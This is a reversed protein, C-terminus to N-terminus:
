SVWSIRNWRSSTSIRSLTGTRPRTSYPQPGTSALTGGVKKFVILRRVVCIVISSMGAWASFLFVIMFIATLSDKAISYLWKKKSPSGYQDFFYTVLANFCWWSWFSLEVISRIAIGKTPTYYSLTLSGAMAFTVSTFALLALVLFRRDSSSSVMSMNKKPRWTYNGGNWPELPKLRFPSPDLKAQLDVLVGVSKWESPFGGVKASLIIACILWFNIMRLAITHSIHLQIKDSFDARIINATIAAVYGLIAFLARRTNNVRSVTLEIAARKCEEQDEVADSRAIAMLFAFHREFDLSFNFDDLAYLIASYIWVVDDRNKVDRLGDRCRDEIRRKVDLKALLSWIAHIPNGLLNLAITIQNWYKQADFSAYNVNGVLILLPVVWTAISDLTNGRGYGAFSPGALLECAQLGVTGNPAGAPPVLYINHPDLRTLNQYRATGAAYNFAHPPPGILKILKEM